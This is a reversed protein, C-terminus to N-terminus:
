SETIRNTQLHHRKLNRLPNRMTSLSGTGDNAKPLSDEKPIDTPKIPNPPTTADKTSETNDQHIAPPTQKPKAAPKKDDDNATSAAHVLSDHVNTVM